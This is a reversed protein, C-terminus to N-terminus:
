ISWEQVLTGEIYIRLALGDFTFECVEGGPGYLFFSSGAPVTIDGTGLALDEKRVVETDEIPPDAVDLIAGTLVKVDGSSRIARVTDSGALPNGAEDYDYYLTPDYDHGPHSGFDLTPTAPRPEIVDSDHAPM